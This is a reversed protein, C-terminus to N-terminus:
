SDSETYARVLDLSAASATSGNRVQLHRGLLTTNAPLDTTYETDLLVTVGGAFDHQTVRVGIRDWNPRCFIDLDFTQNVAYAVGLNVKQVTGAGTRRAFFLNTDAIDKVIGVVDTLASPEGAIAGTSSSLGVIIQGGALAVGSTTFRFHTHFGGRGASNGRWM